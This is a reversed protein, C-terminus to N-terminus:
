QCKIPIPCSIGTWVWWFFTGNLSLFEGAPKSTLWTWVDLEYHWLHRCLLSLTRHESPVFIPLACSWSWPSCIKSSRDYIFISSQNIIVYMSCHKSTFRVSTKMEPQFTALSLFSPYISPHYPPHLPQHISPHFISPLISSPISLPFSPHISLYTIFIIYYLIVQTIYPIHILLNM